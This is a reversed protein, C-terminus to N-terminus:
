ETISSILEFSQKYEPDAQIKSITQMIESIKQQQAESFDGKKGQILESDAFLASSIESPSDELLYSFVFQSLSERGKADANDTILGEIGTRMNRYSNTLDSNNFFDDLKRTSLIANTKKTYNESMAAILVDVDSSDNMELVAPTQYGM